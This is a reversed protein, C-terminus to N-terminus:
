LTTLSEVKTERLVQAFRLSRSYAKIAEKPQGSRYMENGQQKFATAREDNKIGSKVFTVEQKLNLLEVVIQDLTSCNEVAPYLKYCAESLSTVIM